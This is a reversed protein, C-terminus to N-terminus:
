RSVNLSSSRKTLLSQRCRGVLQGEFFEVRREDDQVFQLFRPAHGDASAIQTECRDPREEAEGGTLHRRVARLYLADECHRGLPEITLQDVEQDAGLDISEQTRWVFAGPDAAPVM